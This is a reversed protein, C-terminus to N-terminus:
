IRPRDTRLRWRRFVIMGLVSIVTLSFGATLPSFIIEAVNAGILAFFVADVWDFLVTM